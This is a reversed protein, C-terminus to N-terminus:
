RSPRYLDEKLLYRAVLIEEKFLKWAPATLFPNKENESEILFNAILLVLTKQSFTAKLRSREEHIMKHFSRWFTPFEKKTTRLHNDIADKLYQNLIQKQYIYEPNLEFIRAAADAEVVKRKELSGKSFTYYEGDFISFAKLTDLYGLRLIRKSNVKDFLLFNGLNWSSQILTLQSASQLAKKRVVGVADLDVAIIQTAGQDLAMGVPLNDSFGGDVYTEDGIEYGKMAPFLTSSALLYDILKGQPIQNKMLFHPSLKTLGVTVLGFDISSNRVADEDVYQELLKKLNHNSIASNSIIEKPDTDFIMSTDIEKWLSEALEFTNQAVIAGNIAGVSTGTVLDIQIGLERLGQWVGVEYAGRSGGGGLVLATKATM